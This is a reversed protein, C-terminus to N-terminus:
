SGEKDVLDQLRVTKRKGPKRKEIVEKFDEPNKLIELKKEVKSTNHSEPNERLYTNYAAIARAPSPNEDPSNALKHLFAEYLCDGMLLWVSKRNPGELNRQHEVAQELVGAAEEHRELYHLIKGKNFYADAETSDLETVRDFAAIAEEFRHKEALCIGRHYHAPLHEPDEALAEDLKALASDYKDRGMFEKAEDTIRTAKDAYRYVFRGILAALLVVFIVLGVRVKGPNESLEKM